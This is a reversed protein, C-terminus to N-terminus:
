GCRRSPAAFQVSGGQWPIPAYRQFRRGIGSFEALSQQIAHDDVELETVCVDFEEVIESGFVQCRLDCIHGSEWRITQVKAEKDDPRALTIEGSFYAKKETAAGLKVTDNDLGAIGGDQLSKKRRIHVFGIDHGKMGLHGNPGPSRSIDYSFSEINKVEFESGGSKPTFKCEIFIDM